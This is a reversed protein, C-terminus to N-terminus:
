WGQMVRHFRDRALYGLEQPAKTNNQANRIWWIGEGDNAQSSLYKSNPFEFTINVGIAEFGIQPIHAQ